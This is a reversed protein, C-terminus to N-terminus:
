ASKLILKQVKDTFHIDESEQATQEPDAPANVSRLRKADRLIAKISASDGRFDVTKVGTLQDCLTDVDLCDAFQEPM